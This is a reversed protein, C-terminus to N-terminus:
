TASPFILCATHTVLLSILQTKLFSSQFAPSRRVIKQASGICLFYCFPWILYNVSLSSGRFVIDGLVMMLGALIGHAIATITLRTQM